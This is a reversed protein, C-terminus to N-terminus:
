AILPTGTTLFASLLPDLEPILEGLVGLAALLIGPAVFLFTVSLFGEWSSFNDTETAGSSGSSAM